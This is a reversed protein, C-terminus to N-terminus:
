LNLDEDSIIEELKDELDPSPETSAEPAKETKEVASAKKSVKKIIKKKEEEAREEEVREKEEDRKELWEKFWKGWDVIEFNKPTSIIIHRLLNKELKLSDDIEKIYEPKIEYVYVFYRSKNQLCTRTKGM